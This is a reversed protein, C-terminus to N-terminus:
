MKCVKWDNMWGFLANQIPYWMIMSRLSNLGFMLSSDHWCKNQGFYYSNSRAKGRLVPCHPQLISKLVIHTCLTVLHAAPLKCRSLTLCTAAWHTPRCSCIVSKKEIKSWFTFWWLTQEKQKQTLVQASKVIGAEGEHACCASVTVVSCKFISHEDKLLLLGLSWHSKRSLEGLNGFYHVAPICYYHTQDISNITFM